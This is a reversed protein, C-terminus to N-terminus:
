STPQLVPSVIFPRQMLSAKRWPVIAANYRHEVPKLFEEIARPETLYRNTNGEDIRCVDDSRPTFRKLDSKRVAYMLENLAPTYFRKLHVQSVYHDLAV